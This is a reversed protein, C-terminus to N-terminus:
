PSVEDPDPLELEAREGITEETTEDPGEGEEEGGDDAQKPNLKIVHSNEDYSWSNLVPIVKEGMNITLGQGKEPILSAPDPSRTYPKVVHGILEGQYGLVPLSGIAMSTTSQMNPLLITSQCSAPMPSTVADANIAQLLRAVSDQHDPESDIVSLDQQSEMVSIHLLIFAHVNLLRAEVTVALLYNRMYM